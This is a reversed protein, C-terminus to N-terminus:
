CTRVQRSDDTAPAATVVALIFPLFALPFSAEWKRFAEYDRQAHLEGATGKFVQGVRKIPATPWKVFGFGFWSLSILTVLITIARYMSRRLPVCLGAGSMRRFAFSLLGVVVIIPMIMLMVEGSDLPEPSNLFLAAGAMALLSIGAALMLFLNYLRQLRVNM